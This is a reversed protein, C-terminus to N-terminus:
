LVFAEAFTCPYFIANQPVKLVRYRHFTLINIVLLSTLIQIRSILTHNMYIHIDFICMEADGV